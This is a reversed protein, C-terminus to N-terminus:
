AHVVSSPQEAAACGTSLFYLAPREAKCLLAPQGALTPGGFAGGARDSDSPQLGGPEGKGAPGSNLFVSLGLTLQLPCSSRCVDTQSLSSRAWLSQLEINLLGQAAEAAGGKRFGTPQPNRAICALRVAACAGILRWLGWSHRDEQVSFHFYSGTASACACIGWHTLDDAFLMPAAM